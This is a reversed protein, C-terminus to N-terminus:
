FPLDDSDFDTVEEQISEKKSKVKVSVDGTIVVSNEEIEPKDYVVKNGKVIPKLENNIIDEYFEIMDTRDWMTKGSVKIEKMQPLGKPDDKTFYSKMFNGDQKILISYRKTDKGNKNEEKLLPFLSLPKTIDANKIFSMFTSTYSSDMNFSISYISGDSEISLYLKKMPTGEYVDTRIGIDTIIGELEDYPQKKEKDSSLYFKGEVCKLYIVNTDRNKLAM